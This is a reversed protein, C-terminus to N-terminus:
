WVLLFIIGGFINIDMDLWVLGRVGDVGGWGFVMGEIFFCDIILVFLLGVVVDFSGLGKFCEWVDFM